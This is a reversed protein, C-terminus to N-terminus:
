IDAVREGVQRSYGATQIEYQYLISVARRTVGGSSLSLGMRRVGEISGDRSSGNSGRYDQDRSRLRARGHTVM